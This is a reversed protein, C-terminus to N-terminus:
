HRAPERLGSWFVGKPLHAGVENYKAPNHLFDVVEMLGDKAEDQGAVDSFRTKIDNEAYVKAGSQGFQMFNGMGGGKAMNSGVRRMASSLLWYMLMGPLVWWLIFDLLPSRERNLKKVFRIKGDKNPSPATSLRSVFDPDTVAGTVYTTDRQGKLKEQYTLPASKSYLVKDGDIVVDYVLGKDVDSIFTGYDTEVVSSGRSGPFLFTNILALFAFMLVM